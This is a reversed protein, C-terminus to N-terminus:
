LGRWENSLSVPYGVGMETLKSDLVDVMYRALDDPEMRHLLFPNPIAIDKLEDPKEPEDPDYSEDHACTTLYRHQAEHSDHRM